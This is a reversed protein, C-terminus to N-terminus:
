YGKKLFTEWIQALKKLEGRREFILILERVKSTKNSGPIDDYDVGLVFCLTKFSEENIKYRIDDLLRARDQETKPKAIEETLSIFELIDAESFLDTKKKKASKKIPIPESTLFAAAWAAASNAAYPRWNDNKRHDAFDSISRITLFGTKKASSLAASAVGASEMEVGILKPHISQLEKLVSSDSIVKEGSAIPGFHVKPKTKFPASAVVNPPIRSYWRGSDFNLARDYLLPDAMLLRPRIQSTRRKLKKEEYYLISEGILVDGFQQENRKVGGAIGVVLLHRPRWLSLLDKTALASDINGMRPLLTTVVKYQKESKTKIYGSYYTRNDSQSHTYRSFSDLKGLFAELEDPLAIVVGFDSSLHKPNKM